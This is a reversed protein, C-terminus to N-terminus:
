EAKGGGESKMGAIWQRVLDLGEAHIMRRGLEPMMVKPQISNIRYLLISEDPKGPVIDYSLSGSGSGAAVPSKYVGFRAPETQTATLDLGSNAAGGAPNHCRACNIELWARAREDLTGSRPDDWARESRGSRALAHQRPHGPPDLARAPKRNGRRLRLGQQSAPGQTRDHFAQRRRSLRQVSQRKSRPLSEIARPGRYRDLPCRGNPGRCRPLGRDARRELRLAPRDLRRTQAAPHSDRPLRRGAKPDRLDHEYAFTKSIVTGVPFDFVDADRYTAQTGTPLKVFRLKTTYDSFLPTNLDYPVVGAAPQHDALNGVFLGYDSLKQLPLESCRAPRPPSRRPSRRPISRSERSRRITAPTPHLDRGSRPVERTFLNNTDFNALDFNM